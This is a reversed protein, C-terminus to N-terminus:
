RGSREGPFPSAGVQSNVWSPLRISAGRQGCETCRCCHRLVNSSAEAGFRAIVDSVRMAARHHCDRTACFITIWPTTAALEALTPVPGPISKPRRPKAEERTPEKSRM